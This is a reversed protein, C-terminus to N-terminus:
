VQSGEGDWLSELSFERTERSDKSDFSPLQALGGRLSVSDASLLLTMLLLVPVSDPQM